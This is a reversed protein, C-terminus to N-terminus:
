IQSSDIYSYDLVIILLSTNKIALPITFNSSSLHLPHSSQIDTQGILINFSCSVFIFEFPKRGAHTISTSLHIPQALQPKIQGSPAM